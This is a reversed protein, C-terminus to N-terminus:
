QKVVKKYAQREGEQWLVVSKICEKQLAKIFSEIFNFAIQYDQTASSEVNKDNQTQTAFSFDRKSEVQSVEGLPETHCATPLIPLLVRMEKAIKRNFKNGFDFKGFSAKRFVSVFYLLSYRNWKDKHVLPYLGQIHSYGVFDRPQYFIGESTTTDSYTIMNGKETPELGVYASVGNNLSSNTVVPVDGKTEFLTTNTMKYAKTPKIEFLEGIKFSKWEFSVNKSDQAKLGKCFEEYESLTFRVGGGWM